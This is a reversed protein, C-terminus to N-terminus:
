IKFNKNLIKFFNESDNYPEIDEFDKISKFEAM